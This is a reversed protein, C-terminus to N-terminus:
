RIIIYNQIIYIFLSSYIMILNFFILNPTLPYSIIFITMNSLLLLGRISFAIIEM